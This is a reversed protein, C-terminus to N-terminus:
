TGFFVAWWREWNPPKPAMSKVTATTPSTAATKPDVVIVQTEGPKTWGLVGRALDELARDGQLRSVEYELEVSESKLRAVEARVAQLHEDLRNNTLILDSISVLGIALVVLFCVGM